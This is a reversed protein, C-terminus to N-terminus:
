SCSRPAGRLLRTSRRLSYAAVRDLPDLGRRHSAGKKLRPLALPKVNAKEYARGASIVWSNRGKQPIFSLNGITRAGDLTFTTNAPIFPDASFGFYANDDSGNAVVSSDWNASNACSGSSGASWFSDAARAAVTGLCLQAGTLLALSLAAWFSPNPNFTLANGRTLSELDAVQFRPRGTTNTHRALMLRHSWFGTSKDLNNILIKAARKRHPMLAPLPELQKMENSNPMRVNM